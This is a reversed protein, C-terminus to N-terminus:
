GTLPCTWIRNRNRNRCIIKDCSRCGCHWCCCCCCRCRHGCHFILALSNKILYSLFCCYCFPIWGSRTEAMLHCHQGVCEHHHRELCRRWPLCTGRVVFQALPTAAPMKGVVGVSIKKGYFVKPNPCLSHLTSCCSRTAQETTQLSFHQLRARSM